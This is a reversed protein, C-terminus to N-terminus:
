KKKYVTTVDDEFEGGANERRLTLEFFAGSGKKLLMQRRDADRLPENWQWRDEGMPSAVFYRVSKDRDFRTMTIHERGAEWGIMAWSEEMVRDGLKWVEHVELYAGDLAPQVTLTGYGGTKVASAGADWTGVLFELPKLEPRVQLLLALALTM